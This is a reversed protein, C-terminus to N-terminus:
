SETYNKCYDKIKDLCKDEAKKKVTKVQKEGAAEWLVVQNKKKGYFIVLNKNTKKREMRIIFSLSFLNFLLSLFGM